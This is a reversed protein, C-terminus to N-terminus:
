LASLEPRPNLIVRLPYFGQGIPLDRWNRSARRRLNKKKMSQYNEQNNKNRRRQKAGAMEEKIEMKNWDLNRPVMLQSSKVLSLDQGSTHVIRIRWNSQKEIVMQKLKQQKNVM